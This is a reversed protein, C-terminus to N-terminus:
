QPLPTGCHTCGSRYLCGGARKAAPKLARLANRSDCPEDVETTFVYLTPQWMSGAEAARGESQRRSACCGSRLLPSPIVRRSKPTKTETVVLEGAVRALTGGRVRLLKDDLDIDSWHL